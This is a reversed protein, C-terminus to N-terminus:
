AAKGLTQEIGDIGNTILASSGRRIPLLALARELASRSVGLETAVLAAGHREVLRRLRGRVENTLRTSGKDMDQISM